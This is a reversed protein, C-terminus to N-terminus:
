SIAQASAAALISVTSGNSYTRPSPLQAVSMLIGAGSGKASASTLAILKVTQTSTFTVQALAASNDVSGGAVTGPTFAPRTSPTYATIELALSGLTAATVNEDPAYDGSYLSVYWAPPVSQQKFAFGLLANFGELPVRNDALFEFELPFEDILDGEANHVKAYYSLGRHKQNM